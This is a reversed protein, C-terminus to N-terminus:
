FSSLKLRFGCDSLCPSLSKKLVCIQQPCLRDTGGDRLCGGLVVSRCYSRSCHTHKYFVRLRAPNGIIAKDGADAGSESQVHLRHTHSHTMRLTNMNFRHHGQVKLMFQSLLKLSMPRCTRTNSYWRNSSSIEGRRNRFMRRKSFTLLFCGGIFSSECEFTVPTPTVAGHPTAEQTM